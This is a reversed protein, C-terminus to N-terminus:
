AEINKGKQSECWNNIAYIRGVAPSLPFPMSQCIENIKVQQATETPFASLFAQEMALFEQTEQARRESQDAQDAAEEATRERLKSNGQKVRSVESLVDNMAKALYAMPSHCPQFVGKKGAKVGRKLLLELCESLDGVQYDRKLNEFARWESERKKLPRLDLFYKQLNEPLM